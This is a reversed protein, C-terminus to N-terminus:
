GNASSVYELDEDYAPNCILSGNDMEIMVLGEEIDEKSLGWQLLDDGIVTIKGRQGGLTVVDGLQPSRGSMYTFPKM